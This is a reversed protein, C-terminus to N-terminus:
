FPKMYIPVFLSFLNDNEVDATLLWIGHSFLSTVSLDNPPLSHKHCSSLQM